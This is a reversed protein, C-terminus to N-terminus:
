RTSLSSLKDGVLPTGNAVRVSARKEASETQVSGELGLGCSWRCAVESRLLALEVAEASFVILLPRMLSQIM